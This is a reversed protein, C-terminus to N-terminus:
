EAGGNIPAHTHPPAEALVDLLARLTTSALGLRMGLFGLANDVTPQDKAFKGFATEWDTVIKQDLAAYENLAKLALQRQELPM